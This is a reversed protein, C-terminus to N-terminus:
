SSPGNKPIDRRWNTYLGTSHVLSYTNMYDIGRGISFHAQRRLDLNNGNDPECQDVWWADFSYRGVLSDYAQKWYLNRAQPSHADYYTDMIHTM